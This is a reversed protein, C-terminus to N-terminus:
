RDTTTVKKIVDKGKDKAPIGKVMWEPAPAGKLKTDFFQQMRMAWDKQNARGSIGHLENNYNFLYAEKGLRRMGIYLEIGQYWPVAGDQDNHLILLPTKVRDLGFLPSNEIYLPLGEWISKGIRSQGTEYQGARNIGSEWRIGGYASTMNSVPAGAEAAAFLSTQTIMYAIQYGGWSHGQLGLRKPDVFGRAILSQVGPLISKMASAGPHGMEYHIDPEFMLYGNSVYHTINVSTGGNPAIYSYLGDSLDEYFYTIMPYKKAPDFNDPKYLIGQRPIGDDSLWEVLEATGWAYDKQWPNADSLKTNLSALNPGVYLNPFDAFTSKTAMFVDASRAKSPAGFRVPAMVIKEPARRADLRARYFGAEKTDEDFASLFLPRTTDVYREEEDSDLNVVRLTLNERRGASDTLTVAPRVGNPDIEWIDFRDYVLVSRDDRTWGALGWASPDDPRSFTEQEFHVGAIPGTIDVTKGTAVNHAYWHMRDFYVIYKGGVSLQAQGTIKKAIPKRTGTAPDLLYVDNGGAGWTSELAYPVGTSSLAVSADDSLSANPFEDTTIQTLKKSTLNVLAQYTRNRAQNLQMLQTPQVQVDKWHWLDFRPKGVLSDAPVGDDAPPAIALTVANGARTFSAAFNDPFRMNPPLAASSVVPAATGTRLTGHYVVTRADPKGFDDRDSAFVFQKQTRDFSFGRYNGPGSLVTKTNGAALDRIYVGDRVSDRSTVTYALVKASDDFTYAAVDALREEAGTDLNRLVITSGYNRRPGRAGAPPAGGGRGARGAGAAATSDAPADANAGPSYVLWKGNAEPVRFSRAGAVTDINGDALRIIRLSTVNSSAEAANGAGGRGRGRNPNAREAREAEVQPLQTVM